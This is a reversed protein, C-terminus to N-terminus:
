IWDFGVNADYLVSSSQSIWGTVDRSDRLKAQSALTEQAAEESPSNWVEDSDPMDFNLDALTLLETRRDSVGAGSSELRTTMRCVKYLALGFRKIEEVSLWVLVM